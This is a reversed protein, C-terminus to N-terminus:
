YGPHCYPQIPKMVVDFGLGNGSVQTAKGLYLDFDIAYGTVDALVWYKFGWNALKNRIYQRFHTRAKSKVMCEDISLSRSPQYWEACRSKIHNHIPLIMNLKNGSLGAEEDPTVLHLFTGIIEYRECTLLESLRVLHQAKKISWAYKHNRVGHIGLLILAGFYCFLEAKTFQGNIFKCYSDMLDDKNHYAFALTSEIIREVVHDDFYLEFLALPDIVADCPLHPGQDRLPCFDEVTFASCFENDSVTINVANSPLVATISRLRKGGRGTLNCSGRGGSRSCETDGRQGVARMQGRGRMQGCGRTRRRSRRQGHGRNSEDSDDSESSNGGDNNSVDSSNEHGKNSM